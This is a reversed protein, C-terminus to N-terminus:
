RATGVPEATGEPAGATPARRYVALTAWLNAILLLILSVGIMTRVLRGRESSRRTGEGSKREVKLALGAVHPTWAILAGRQAYTELPFDAGVLPLWQWNTDTEEQLMGLRQDPDTPATAALLWAREQASRIPWQSTQAPLTD